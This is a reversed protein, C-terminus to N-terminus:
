SVGARAAKRLEAYLMTGLWRDLIQPFRGGARIIPLFRTPFYHVEFRELQLEQFLRLLERKSYARGLPNADGDYRRTFDDVSASQGFARSKISFLRM